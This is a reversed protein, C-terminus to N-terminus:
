MPHVPASFFFRSGQGPTSELEVTGGMLQAIRRATALGLGVGGHPRTLGDDAQTFAGFVKEQIAPPIGPGTDAVSAYLMTRGDREGCWVSLDISGRETFKVANGVLITMVNSIDQPSSMVQEPLDHATDYHFSLGKLHAAAEYMKVVESVLRAPSCPRQQIDHGGSELQSFTLIQNLVSMMARGSRELLNVMEGAKSDLEMLGLVEAIGLIGNMPTRLEHSMNTLFASKARSAEEARDRAVALEAERQVERMLANSFRRSSSLLTIWFLTTMLIVTGTWKTFPLTLLGILCPALMGTSYASFVWLEASLLPVAAASMGAITFATVMVAWPEGSRLIAAGGCGWILGSLIAAAGKIQIWRRDPLSARKRKFLSALVLRLVAAAMVLSWWVIMDTPQEDYRLLVVISANVVSFAQSVLVNEFLLEVKRKAVQLASSPGTQNM